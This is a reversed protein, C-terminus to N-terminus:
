REGTAVIAELITELAKANWEAYAHSMQGPTVYPSSVATVLKARDVLCAKAKEVVLQWADTSLTVASDTDTAGGRERMADEHRTALDLLQVVYTEPLDAIDVSAEWLYDPWGKEAFSPLGRIDDTIFLGLDEMRENVNTMNHGMNGAYSMTMKERTLGVTLFGLSIRMEKDSGSTAM